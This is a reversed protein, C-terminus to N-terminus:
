VSFEAGTLIKVAQLAAIFELMFVEEKWPEDEALLACYERFFEEKPQRASAAEADGELAPVVDESVVENISKKGDREKTFVRFGQQDEIERRWMFTTFSSSAARFSGYEVMEVATPVDHNGVVVRYSEGLDQLGPEKGYGTSYM